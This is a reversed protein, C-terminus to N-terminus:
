ISEYIVVALCDLRSSSLQVTFSQNQKFLEMNVFKAVTVHFVLWGSMDLNYVYHIIFVFM